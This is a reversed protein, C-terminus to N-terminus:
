MEEQQRKAAKERAEIEKERTDTYTTYNGVYRTLSGNFLEYVETVLTDLFEQDHSVVMLGGNFAKLYDELWTMAEIDLYNTPEDLLLFDPNEVLVRALAVRM